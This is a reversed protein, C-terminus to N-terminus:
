AKARKKRKRKGASRSRCGLRILHLNQLSPYWATPVRMRMRPGLEITNTATTSRATSTSTYFGLTPRGVFRFGMFPNTGCKWNQYWPQWSNAAQISSNGNHSSSQANFCQFQFAAQKTIYFTRLIMNIWKKTFCRKLQTEWFSFAM